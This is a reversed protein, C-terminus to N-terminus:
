YSRSQLSIYTELNLAIYPKDIKLQTYSQAQENQDVIPVSVTEIQYLILQQTYPQVFVPFQVILYRNEDIGFKVLKMDYYLYLWKLVLNYDRNKIQLAKKVKGLIEHLKSPLLLLIPLYGKLLIRMARAYMKLQDIFQEYMRIYKEKIMRLFLLSNIAYQGVGDKSLYWQFWAHFKGAFLKENWTTMNYMRYVTQILQELTDSNYIGYMIMSDKLHFIKNQQLDVKSEM